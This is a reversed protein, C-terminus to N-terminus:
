ALKNRLLLLLHTWASEAVTINDNGASGTTGEWTPRNDISERVVLRTGQRVGRLSTTVADSFANYYFFSRCAQVIQGCQAHWSPCTRPAAIKSKPEYDLRLWMKFLVRRNVVTAVLVRCWTSVKVLLSVVRLDDGVDVRREVVFSSVLLLPREPLSWTMCKLCVQM